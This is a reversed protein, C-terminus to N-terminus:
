TTSASSRPIARVDHGADVVPAALWSHVPRAAGLDATGAIPQPAPMPVAAATTLVFAGDRRWWGPLDRGTPVHRVVLPRWGGGAPGPPDAPGAGLTVEVTRTDARLGTRLVKLASEKASWLLNAAADRANADPLARVGAAEGATLFDTVFGDSRPEVLELDVGVADLGAGVLCVAWGARDTVSVDVGVPEGDVLVYPAGSPHNLVAVRDPGHPLGLAHLVAQKTTWRRLLFETRRKTFRLQALREREPAALWGDVQDPRAPVAHEGGAFWRTM